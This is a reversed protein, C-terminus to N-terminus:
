AAEDFESFYIVPTRLGVAPMLTAYPMTESLHMHAMPRSHPEFGGKLIVTEPIPADVRNNELDLRLRIKNCTTRIMDLMEFGHVRVGPAYTSLAAELWENTIGDIEVPPSLTNTKAM